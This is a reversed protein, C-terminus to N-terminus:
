SFNDCISQTRNHHLVNLYKIPTWDHENNSTLLDNLPCASLFLYINLKFTQPASITLERWSPKPFIGSKLGNLDRFCAKCSQFFMTKKLIPLLIISSLLFDINLYFKSGSSSLKLIQESLLELLSWFLLM